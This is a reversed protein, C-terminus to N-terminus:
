SVVVVAWTKATVADNERPGGDVGLEIAQAKKEIDNNITESNHSSSSSTMGPEITHELHEARLPKSEQM